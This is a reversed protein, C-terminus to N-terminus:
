PRLARLLIDLQTEMLVEHDAWELHPKVIIISVLGHISSWLVQTLIQVREEDHLPLICDRVAQQFSELLESGARRAVSEEQEGGEPALTMFALRYANSHQFGFNLYGKMLRRLKVLPDAETASIERSSALLSSFAESCIEELIEAKDRFHLYLATSSVGVADAIKRITAGEYGHAVFIQEAAALIEGRRAHGEGKPKRVSRVKPANESM